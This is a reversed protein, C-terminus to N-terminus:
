IKNEAEKMEDEPLSTKNLKKIEENANRRAARIGVRAHEGLDKLKKVLEKRREETLPPMVIRIANGDNQPNLGLNAQSIGKEITSLMNKEWPQIMLTRADVISINSVQNLPTHVGYYDVFVSGLMAPSAKGARINLFAKELHEISGTMSEKTSDLIFEIEETM